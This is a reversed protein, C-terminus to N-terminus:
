PRVPLEITADTEVTRTEAREPRGPVALTATVEDPAVVPQRYVDLRYTGHRTRHGTLTLEVTATSKPPIVVATSYVRRGLEEGRELGVPAGDVTAGVLEWPTYFSLYLKNTGNPLSPIVENGILSPGLGSAPADNHLSIKATARVTGTRPDVAVRYDVERRLFYDIKNGAANQTVLGVFDDAPPAVAGTAGMDRFLQQEDPRTSWFFVHKDHVAPGFSAMLQPVPPLDGSTLRGWAEQAVQGLFDVRAVADNTTYREYQDFLLIQLANASNIPTPWSPVDVPGVVALLAALGYPDVAIVGDVPAGGSQPYLDAIVSADTPFDPSLNVNVWNQAPGFRTYRALYDPPGHITRAERGPAHTLDDQRGFRTLRLRGDEATIEGYNGLFGGGGPAEVPTQVALFYRRPGDQGLLRPVMALTRDALHTSKEIDRIRVLETDLKDALPPVLWPSRAADLRRRAARARAAVDAVSPKV